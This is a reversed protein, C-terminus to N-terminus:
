AKRLRRFRGYAVAYRYIRRFTERSPLKRFIFPDPMTNVELIWPRMGADLAIDIGLEKVRPYRREMASAVKVGIRRLRAYLQNRQEGNLYPRLLLDTSMPTGGSHYNTVIKRPHGLRGIIGTTEWMRNPNKQVMVRIDFRRGNYKLLYIGQQVLYPKRLMVSSLKAYCSDFNPLVFKRVGTQVLYSPNYGSQREVRVVGRGFSGVVPKAYIMGFRGLLEQMAARSFRRTDPVLARLEPVALLAETKAWKSIVRQIPM